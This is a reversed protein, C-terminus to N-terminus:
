QSSSPTTNLRLNETFPKFQIRKDFPTYRELELTDGESNIIKITYHTDMIKHINDNCAQWGREYLDGKSEQGMIYGGAYLTGLIFLIGLIFLFGEFWEKNIKLIIWDKAM